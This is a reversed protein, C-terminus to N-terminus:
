MNQITYLHESVEYIKELDSKNPNQTFYFECVQKSIEPLQDDTVKFHGKIIEPIMSEDPCSINNM